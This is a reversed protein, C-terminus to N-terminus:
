IIVFRSLYYRTKNPPSFLFRDKILAVHSLANELVPVSFNLM